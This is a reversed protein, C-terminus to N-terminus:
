THLHFTHKLGRSLIHSCLCSSTLFLFVLLSFYYDLLSVTLIVKGEELNPPNETGMANGMERYIHELGRSLIHSCICSSILFLVGLVFRNTKGERRGKGGKERDTIETERPNHFSIHTSIYM